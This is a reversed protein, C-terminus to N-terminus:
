NPKEDPNQLQYSFKLRLFDGPTIQVRRMWMEQIQEDSLGQARAQESTMTQKSQKARDDFVFKDAELKGGTGGFDEYEKQQLEWLGQVWEQNFKAEPMDLQQELASHYAALAEDLVGAHALANGLYFSAEASDIESFMAAASSFDGAAYYALGKWMPATFASAARAYEGREYYYRGQQDPTLWYDIFSRACASGSLGLLVLFLLSTKLKFM